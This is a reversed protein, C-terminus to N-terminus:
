FCSFFSHWRVSSLVQTGFKGMNQEASVLVKKVVDLDTSECVISPVSIHNLKMLNEKEIFKQVCFTDVVPLLNGDCCSPCLLHSCCSEATSFATSDQLFSTYIFWIRQQQFPPFNISINLLDLLYKTM